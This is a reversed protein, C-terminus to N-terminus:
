FGKGPRREPLKPKEEKEAAEGALSLLTTLMQPSVKKGSKQLLSTLMEPGPKQGQSLMGTLMGLVDKGGAGTGTVVQEQALDLISMLTFLSLVTITGPLDAQKGDLNQLTQAMLSFISVNCNELDKEQGM